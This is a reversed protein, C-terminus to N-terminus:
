SRVMATPAEAMRDSVRVLVPLTGTVPRERALEAPSKASVTGQASEARTGPALQGTVTVKVGVMMPGREPVRVMVLESPVVGSRTGRVPVPSALPEKVRETSPPEVEDFV